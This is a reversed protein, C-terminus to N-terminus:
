DNLSERHRQIKPEIKFAAGKKRRGRGTKWNVITVIVIAVTGTVLM